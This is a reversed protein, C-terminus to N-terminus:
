EVINLTKEIVFARNFYIQVTYQGAIGPTIPLNLHCYQSRNHWLQWWPITTVKTLDGLVNGESDRIVFMVDINDGSYDPRETSYLVMSVKAGIDHTSTYADDAVDKYTWDKRDPTPCLSASIESAKLGYNAFITADPADYTYSGGFVSSGDAAQVTLHYDAGPITNEIVATNETCLFASAVDGSGQTYVLMWGGEPVQEGSDWNILLRGPESDDVTIESITIPNASIYIRTNQTMGAATVEVTYAADMSIGSFSATTESVSVTEDYGNESYCHVSWSEVSTDAPANWSLNLVGDLYSLVSLNEAIVNKSATFTLTDNGSIFLDSDQPAVLQFNYTSGVTLNNITVMHGTFSVSRTQEDAASYEVIWDQEPGEVAFSLVVSGDETGTKAAFDLIKTQEVTTVTGRYSGTLGHFGEAAVEIKYLTGPTLDTFVAKRDNVSSTVSNGYTDTCIIWLLSDDVDTTLQVTIFDDESHIDMHDIQLLYYNRYFFLGGFAILALLVLTILRKLWVHKKRPEEYPLFPDEEQESAEAATEAASLPIDSPNLIGALASDIAAADPATAESINEDMSESAEIPAPNEAPEAAQVPAETVPETMLEDAQALITSVDDTMKTDSLTDADDTDPATEDSVLNNLFDLEEPAASAENEEAAHLDVSATDPASSSVAPEYSADLFDSSVSPPVIPNDTINNRRMYSVLAQGMEIPTQWRKRPNPDCAKLIIEALEYDANMPAPLGAAPAKDDFPLQGNNYIQYLIMGLAYIDATPNLTSLMDHLEPPTYCSCYKSPLSTYKLSNLKAFGLDGIRYERKGTMFINSPKLDTHIYGARRCISLAACIDLGLNVAGLHTMTHSKLYKELSRKYPSILYIQYGLRSGEMPVIQWDDYGLFGELKALQKLLAAEKAIGEAVEKFYDTASAADPYAGTLLLADLQKQSAPVSIIKVIFKEESNERMAPCCSVGDHSSIPDGMLFGDLLPSVLHYESM